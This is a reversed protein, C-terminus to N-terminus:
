IHSNVAPKRPHYAYHHGPPKHPGYIQPIGAPKRPSYVYRNRLSKHPSYVYYNGAPKHHRYIQSNGPPKHPSYVYHNGPPNCPCPLLRLGKEISFLACFLHAHSETQQLEAPTVEKTYGPSRLVCPLKFCLIVVKTKKRLKLCEPPPLHPFILWFTHKKKKRSMCTQFRYTASTGPSRM